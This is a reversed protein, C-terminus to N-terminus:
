HPGHSGRRSPAATALQGGGGSGGTIGTGGTTVVLCCGADALARITAAIQDLDDPVIRSDARWPVTLVEGLYAAITPGGEDAYEGRSARDSVTVIGIRVAAPAAPTKGSM